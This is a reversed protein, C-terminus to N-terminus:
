CCTSKPGGERPARFFNYFQVVDSSDIYAFTVLPWSCTPRSTRSLDRRGGIAPVFKKVGKYFARTARRITADYWCGHCLIIYNEGNTGHGMRTTSESGTLIPFLQFISFINAAYAPAAPGWTCQFIPCILPLYM